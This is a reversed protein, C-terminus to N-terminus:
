QVKETELSVSKVKHFEVGKNMNFEVDYTKNKTQEEIRGFIVFNRNKTQTSNFIIGDYKHHHNRIVEAFVQTEIYSTDTSRFPRAILSHLFKIIFQLQFFNHQRPNTLLDAQPVDFGSLSTFDFFHMDKMIKFSGIAVEDGAFPHVESIATHINEAAYFFSIGSPSMRNNKSLKEPPADLQNEPCQSIVKKSDEDKLVRARFIESGEVQITSARNLKLPNGDIDKIEIVCMSIINKFLDVAKNNSFRQSHKLEYAITEWTNKAEKICEDIFKDDVYDVYNKEVRFFNSEECLLPILKEIFSANKFTFRELVERLPVGNKNNDSHYYHNKVNRALSNVFDEVLIGEESENDCILCRKNMNFPKSLTKFYFATNCKKCVVGVSNVVKEERESLSLLLMRTRFSM